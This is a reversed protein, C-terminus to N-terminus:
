RDTDHADSQLLTVFFVRWADRLCRGGSEILTATASTTAELVQGPLLVVRPVEPRPRPRQRGATGPGAGPQMGGEDLPAVADVDDPAVEGNARFGPAGPPADVATSGGSAELRARDILSEFFGRM